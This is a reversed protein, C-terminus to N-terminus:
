KKLISLLFLFHRSTDFTVVLIATRLITFLLQAENNRYIGKPRNTFCEYVYAWKRAPGVHLVDQGHQFGLQREKTKRM